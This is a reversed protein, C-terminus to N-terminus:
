SEISLTSHIESLTDRAQLMRRMACDLDVGSGSFEKDMVYGYVRCGDAKQELQKALKIVKPSTIIDYLTDEKLDGLYFPNEKPDKGLFEPIYAGWICSYVHGCSDIGLKSKLM